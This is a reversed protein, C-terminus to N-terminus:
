KQWRLSSSIARSRLKISAALLHAVMRLPARGDVAVETHAPLHLTDLSRALVQRTADLYASGWQDDQELYAGEAWENWANIFILRPGPQMAERTVAKELWNAYARPSANMLVTAARMRRPTNDWSPMVGPHTRVKHKRGMYRRSVAQYDLLRGTFGPVLGKPRGRFRSNFTADGVPPFEAIADFGMRTPNMRSQTEAAVLHLEGVGAEAALRRWTTTVQRPSPLQAARHVLLIAKGDSRMYRPDLLYPLFSDFVKEIWGEQYTQPMLVEHDKGDWRRTWNENAWCIAFPMPHDDALRADLPRELLRHGDFWYHYYIFGSLGASLASDCQGRVVNDDLLSYYGPPHVPTRPQKHESFQPTARRVNTWETFGEGWWSDNEPISHFQPLYFAVSQVNQSM